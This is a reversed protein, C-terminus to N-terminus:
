PSSIARKSISLRNSPAVQSLTAPGRAELNGYASLFGVPRPAEARTASPTLGHVEELCMRLRAAWREVTREMDAGMLSNSVGAMIQKGTASDVLEAEIDLRPERGPIETRRAAAPCGPLL